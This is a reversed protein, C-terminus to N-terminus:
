VFMSDGVGRFDVVSWFTDGEVKICGVVNDESIRQSRRRDGCDRLAKRCFKDGSAWKRGVRPEGSAFFTLSRGRDNWHDPAGVASAWYHNPVKGPDSTDNPTQRV